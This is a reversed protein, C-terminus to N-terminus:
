TLFPKRLRRYGNFFSALVLFVSMAHNEQHNESEKESIDAFNALKLVPKKADEEKSEVKKVGGGDKEEGEEQAPQEKGKTEGLNLAMKLGPKPVDEKKEDKKKLIEVTEKDAKKSM